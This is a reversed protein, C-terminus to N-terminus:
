SKDEQKFPICVTGNKHVLDKLNDIQEQDLGISTLFDETGDDENDSYFQLNNEYLDEYLVTSIEGTTTDRVVFGINTAVLPLMKLCGCEPDFPIHVRSNDYPNKETSSKIGFMIDLDFLGTFPSDTCCEQTLGIAYKDNVRKFEVFCDGGIDVDRVFTQNMDYIKFENEHITFFTKDKTLGDGHIVVSPNTHSDISFLLEDSMFFDVKYVGRIGKWSDLGFVNVPWRDVVNYKASFIGCTVTRTETVKEPYTSSFYTRKSGDTKTLLHKTQYFGKLRFGDISEIEAFNTKVPDSM